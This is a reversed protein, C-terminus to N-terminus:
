FASPDSLDIDSEADDNENNMLGLAVLQSALKEPTFPKLVYGSAGMELAENIREKSGETSVMIVPLTEKSEIQRLQMLMEIGDMGPMNIDSLVLDVHKQTIIGLAEQGDGAELFEGLDIGVQRVVKRIVQRILISDDVVLVNISM